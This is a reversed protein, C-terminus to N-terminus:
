GSAPTLDYVTEGGIKVSKFHAEVWRTISSISSSGM